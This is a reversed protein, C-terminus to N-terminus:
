VVIQDLIEYQDQNDLIVMEITLDPLGVLLNLDPIPVEAQSGPLIEITHHGEPMIIQIEEEAIIVPLMAMDTTDVTTLTTAGMIAMTIDEMIDVIGPIIIDEGAGALVGTPIIVGDGILDTTATDMAGPIIGATIGATIATTDVLTIYISRLMKQIKEGPGTDKKM